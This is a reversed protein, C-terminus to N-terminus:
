NRLTLFKIFYIIEISHVVASVSPSFLIIALTAHCYKMLRVIIPRVAYVAYYYHYHFCALKRHGTPSYYSGHM